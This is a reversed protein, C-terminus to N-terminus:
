PLRELFWLISLGLVASSAYRVVRTHWTSKAVAYVIPMAVAVIALQGIEVGANFALVAAFWQRAPLDLVDLMGAFGFGHILGFGFATPWRPRVPDGILNEVAVYAITVAIAPEVFGAPPTVVRMAALLLTVSHALTFASVIGLRSRWTGGALLLCGLFVLHDYGTLIHDVGLLLMARTSGAPAVGDKWSHRPLDPLAHRPTTVDFVLPMVIGNHELRGIVRHTADTLEHFTARLALPGGDGPTLQHVIQVDLLGSTLVRADVIHAPVPAGGQLVAFHTRLSEGFSRLREVPVSGVADVLDPAMRRVDDLSVLIQGRVEAGGFTVRWYAVSGAHAFASAVGTLLVIVASALMRLMYFSTM